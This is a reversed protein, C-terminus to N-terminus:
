VHSCPRCRFRSRRERLGEILGALEDLDELSCIRVVALEALIRGQTSYRMRSLTQDLIQMAALSNQLGLRRGLDSVEERRSPAAYLLIDSPCGAASRWRM